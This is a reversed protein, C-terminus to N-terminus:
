QWYSWIAYILYILWSFEVNTSYASSSAILVNVHPRCLGFEHQKFRENRASIWTTNKDLPNLDPILWGTWLVWLSKLEFQVGILKICCTMRQMLDAVFVHYLNSNCPMINFINGTFRKFHGTVEFVFCTNENCNPWNPWGQKGTPKSQFWNAVKFTGNKITETEKKWGSGAAVLLSGENRGM